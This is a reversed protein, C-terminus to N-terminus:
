LLVEEDMFSHSQDSDKPKKNKKKKKKGESAKAKAREAEADAKAKAKAAEEAKRRAEESEIAQRYKAELEELSKTRRRAQLLGAEEFKDKARQLLGYAGYSAEGKLNSVKFQIEAQELMEEAARTLNAKAEEVIAVKANEAAREAKIQKTLNRIEEQKIREAEDILFREHRSCGDFWSCLPETYVEIESLVGDNNASDTGLVTVSVGSAKLPPCSLEVMSVGRKVEVTAKAEKSLKYLQEGDSNYDNAVTVNPIPKWCRKDVLVFMRQAEDSLIRFATIKLDVFGVGSFIKIRTIEYIKDFAVLFMAHSLDGGWSWGSYSLEGHTGYYGKIVGDIAKGPGFGRKQGDCEAHAGNKKRAVNLCRDHPTVVNPRMKMTPIRQKMFEFMSQEEGAINFRRVLEQEADGNVPAMMTCHGCWPAFFKVLTHETTNSEFTDTTLHRPSLSEEALSSAVFFIVILHLLIFGSVRM